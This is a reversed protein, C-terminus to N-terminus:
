AAERLPALAARLAVQADLFRAIRENVAPAHTVPGIHGMGPLTEHQAFPVMFRLLEGIRRAAPVTAGGRLFLAPIRLAALQARSMADDFLGDFQALVTPMRAAVSQQRQPPMVDWTGAGSWFDVFRRAAGAGDGHALRARISVATGLVARAPAHRPNYDFLVRFVVPEYVTVSHVRQPHKLALKLAVAGGYSHGVLHVGGATAHILPEVLAAEDALRMPRDGHWPPTAGHGHLDVAHLRFRSQLADVLPDWQRASSGSSHLLVVDPGQGASRINAKVTIM